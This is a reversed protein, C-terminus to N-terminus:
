SAVGIGIKKRKLIRYVSTRDINMEKAIATAGLGKSNLMRVQREDISIGRGKFKHINAKIGDKQRESRICTEFESFVSLMNLFCKGEPTKTNISQETASFTVGKEELEKVILQLDLVSRSCRDIRTVVFEDGDRVFELCEKLGERGERKTGSKKEQFIKECGYEKLVVLQSELNQGVSSVRALGVKM